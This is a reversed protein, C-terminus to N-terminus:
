FGEKQWNSKCYAEALIRDLQIALMKAQAVTLAAELVVIIEWQEAHRRIENDLIEAITQAEKRTLYLINTTDDHSLDIAIMRGSTSQVRHVDPM